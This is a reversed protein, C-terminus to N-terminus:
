NVVHWGNQAVWMPGVGDPLGKLMFVPTFRDGVPMVLYRASDGLWVAKEVAKELNRVSAYTKTNEMELEIQKAM